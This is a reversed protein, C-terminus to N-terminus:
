GAGILLRGFRESPPQRVAYLGVAMPTAIVVLHLAIRGVLDSNPESAGVVVVAGISSLALAGLALATTSLLNRAAADPAHRGTGAASVPQAQTLRFGAM